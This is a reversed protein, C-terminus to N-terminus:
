ERQSSAACANRAARSCAPNMICVGPESLHEAAGSDEEWKTPLTILEPGSGLIRLQVFVRVEVRKKVRMAVEVIREGRAIAQM